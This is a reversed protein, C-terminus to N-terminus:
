HHITSGVLVLSIFLKIILIKYMQHRAHNERSKLIVSSKRVIKKKLIYKEKVKLSFFLQIDSDKAM